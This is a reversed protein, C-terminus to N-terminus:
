WAAATTLGGDVVITQGNIFSGGPSCLFAVTAAIDEASGRFGANAGESDGVGRRDFRFVPIGAAALRTALLAQGNWAGARLENGGTVILLGTTGPAADLTGALHVGACPFFLQRRTM